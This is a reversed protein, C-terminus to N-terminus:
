RPPSISDSDGTKLTMEQVSQRGHPSASNSFAKRSTHFFGSVVHIVIHIRFQSQPTKTQINQGLCSSRIFESDFHHGIPKIPPYIEEPFIKGNPKLEVLVIRPSWLHFREACEIQNTLPKHPMLLPGHGFGFVIGNQYVVDSKLNAQGGDNRSPNPQHHFLFCFTAQSTKIM